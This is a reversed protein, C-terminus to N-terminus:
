RSAEVEGLVWHRFTLPDAIAPIPTSIGGMGQIFINGYNLIRGLVSQQVNLTTVRDLNLEFTTRSILGFKAIVRQDTVALETSFFYMVDTIFRFLAFFSLIGSIILQDFVFYVVMAAISLLLVPIFIIWHVHGVFRVTEGRLLTNNVYSM